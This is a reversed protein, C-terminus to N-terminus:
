VKGYKAKMKNITDEYPISKVEGSKLRKYRETLVNKELERYEDEKMNKYKFKLFALFNLLEGQATEPLIDIEYIIDLTSM